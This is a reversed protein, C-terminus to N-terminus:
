AGWIDKNKANNQRKPKSFAKSKRIAKQNQRIEEKKQRNTSDRKMKDKVFTTNEGTFTLAFVIAQDDTTFGFSQKIKRLYRRDTPYIEFEIKEEQM